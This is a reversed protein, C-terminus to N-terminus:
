LDSTETSVHMRSAITTPPPWLPRTALLAGPAMRDAAHARDRLCHRLARGRAAYVDTEIRAHALLLREVVDRLWPDMACAGAVFAARAEGELDLAADFIADACRLAETPSQGM